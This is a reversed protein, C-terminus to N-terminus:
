SARAPTTTERTEGRIVKVEKPADIAFKVRKADCKILIITIEGEPMGPGIPIHIREEPKRAILLM